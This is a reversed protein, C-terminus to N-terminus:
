QPASSNVLHEQNKNHHVIDLAAIRQQRVWGVQVISKKEKEEIVNM